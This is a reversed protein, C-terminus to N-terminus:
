IGDLDDLVGLAFGICDAAQGVVSHGSAYRAGEWRALKFRLRSEAHIGGQASFHRWKANLLIPGLM